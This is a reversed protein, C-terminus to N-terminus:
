FYKGLQAATTVANTLSQTNGVIPINTNTNTNKKENKSIFVPKEMVGFGKEELNLNGIKVPSSFSGPPLRKGLAGFQDSV